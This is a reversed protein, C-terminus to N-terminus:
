QPIEQWAIVKNKSTKAGLYQIQRDAYDFYTEGRGNRRWFEAREIGNVSVKGDRESAKRQREAIEFAEDQFYGQTIVEKNNKIYKLLVPKNYEPTAEEINIWQTATEFGALWASELDLINEVNGIRELAYQQAAVIKRDEINM